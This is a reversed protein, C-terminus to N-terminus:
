LFNLSKINLSYQLCSNNNHLINILEQNIRMILKNM